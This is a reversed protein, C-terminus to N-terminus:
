MRLKLNARPPDGLKVAIHRDTEELEKVPRRQDLVAVVDSIVRKVVAVGGSGVDLKCQLPIAPVPLHNGLHDDQMKLTLWRSETCASFASCRRSEAWARKMTPLRISKTRSRERLFKHRNFGGRGWCGRGGRRYGRGGGRGRRRRGGRRLGDRDRELLELCK